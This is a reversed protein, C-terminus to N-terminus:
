LKLRACELRLHNMVRLLEASIGPESLAHGAVPVMELRSRGWLSHLNWATEPPCIMDYRGQVITGPVDQMRALGRMLAGYDGLFFNYALYPNELRACVGPY